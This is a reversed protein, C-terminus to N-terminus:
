SNYEYFGFIIQSNCLHPLKTMKLFGSKYYGSKIKPNAAKQNHIDFM